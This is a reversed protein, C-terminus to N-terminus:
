VGASSSGVWRGRVFWVLFKLLVNTTMTSNVMNTMGPNVTRVLLCGAPSCRLNVIRSVHTSSPITSMNTGNVLPGVGGSGNLMLGFVGMFVIKSTATVVFSLTNLTFVLVSSVALFRSTRASTNMALKLLVAVASVLPNHTARTLHHAM